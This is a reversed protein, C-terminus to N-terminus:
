LEELVDKMTYLGNPKGVLFKAAQIAGMAFIDRTKAKHIIEIKDEESEFVVKHDGVVEGERVSDIPISKLDKRVDKVIKALLKGTGSPKDKKHIHHIEEMEVKYNKGLTKATKQVLDFILNVGVSMNPSILIPIDKASDTIEKLQKDDFGTTGIVIPKKNKRAVKLNAITAVPATFDIICDSKEINNNLDDSIEIGMDMSNSKLEKSLSVGVLSCGKVETAGVIALEEDHSALVAIWKGMRGCVGCIGIKIM